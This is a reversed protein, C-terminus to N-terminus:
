GYWSHEEIETGLKKGCLKCFTETLTSAHTDYSGSYYTDKTIVEIHPCLERAESLLKNARKTLTESEKLAKSFYKLLNKVKTITKM